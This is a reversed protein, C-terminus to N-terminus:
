RTSALMMESTRLPSRQLELTEAQYAEIRSSSRKRLVSTRPSIRLPDLKRACSIGVLCRRQFPPQMLDLRCEVTAHETDVIRNGVLPPADAGDPRDRDDVAQERRGRHDIAEREHRAVIAVDGAEAGQHEIWKPNIAAM